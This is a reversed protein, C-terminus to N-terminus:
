KISFKVKTKVYYGEHEGPLWKPSLLFVRKIEKSDRDSTNKIIEVNTISGDIEVIFSVVVEGEINNDSRKKLNDFIFDNFKNEGNPFEAKVQVDENNYIKKQIDNISNSNQTFSNQFCFIVLLIIFKKIKSKKM